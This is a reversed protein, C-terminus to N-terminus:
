LCQMWQEGLEAEKKHELGGRKLHVYKHTERADQHTPVGQSLLRQQSVSIMSTTSQIPSVFPTDRAAMISIVGIGLM